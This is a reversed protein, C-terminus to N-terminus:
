RSRAQEGMLNHHEALGREYRFNLRAVGFIRLISLNDSRSDSVSFGSQNVLTLQLSKQCPNLSRHFKALFSTIIKCTVSSWLVQLIALPSSAQCQVNLSVHLSAYRLRLFDDSIIGATRM